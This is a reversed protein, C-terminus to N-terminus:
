LQVNAFPQVLHVPTALTLPNRPNNLTGGLGLGAVGSPHFGRTSTPINGSDGPRIDMDYLNLNFIVLAPFGLLPFPIVVTLGAAIARGWRLGSTQGISFVEGGFPFYDPSGFRAGSVMTGVPDLPPLGTPPFWLATTPLARQSVNGAAVDLYLFTLAPGPVAYPVWTLVPWPTDVRFLEYWSNVNGINPGGSVVMREGSPPTFLWTISAPLNNLFEEVGWGLAVHACTLGRRGGGGFFRRFTGSLTGGEGDAFQESSNAVASGSLMGPQRIMPPRGRNMTFNMGCEKTIVPFKEKGITIKDPLKPIGRHHKNDVLLLLAPSDYDELHTVGAGWVGNDKLLWRELATERAYLSVGLFDDPVKPTLMEEVPIPFDPLDEPYGFEILQPPPKQSKNNKDSNKKERM